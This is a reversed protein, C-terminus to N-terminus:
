SRARFLSRGHAELVALQIFPGLVNGVNTTSDFGFDGNLSSSGSGSGGCYFGVKYCGSLLAFCFYFCPFVTALWYTPAAHSVM